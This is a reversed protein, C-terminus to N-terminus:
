AAMRRSPWAFGGARQWLITPSQAHAVRSLPLLFLLVTVSRAVNRFM